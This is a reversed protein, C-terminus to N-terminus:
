GRASCGHAQPAARRSRACALRLDSCNPRLRWGSRLGTDPFQASVPVCSRREWWRTSYSRHCSRIGSDRGIYTWHVRGDLPFDHLRAPSGEHQFVGGRGQVPIPHHVFQGLELEPQVFARRQDPVAVTDRDCPVAAFQRIATPIPPQFAREGTSVGPQRRVGQAGNRDRHRPRMGSAAHAAVHDGGHAVEGALVAQVRQDRGHTGAEFVGIGERRHFTVDLPFM